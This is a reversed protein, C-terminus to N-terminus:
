RTVLFVGIVNGKIEVETDFIVTIITILGHKLQAQIIGTQISLLKHHSVDGEAPM